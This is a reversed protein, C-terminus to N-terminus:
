GRPPPLLLGKPGWKAMCYFFPVTVWKPAIDRPRVGFFAIGDRRTMVPSCGFSSVPIYCVTQSVNEATAVFDPCYRSFLRRLSESTREVRATDVRAPSGDGPELFPEDDISVGALDAWIDFKPVVVVLPKKIRHSAPLRLFRRVRVGVENVIQEQRVQPVPVTGAPRLGHTLQPDRSTCKARFAPEQIPDFLMFIIGSKALHQIATPNPDAIDPLYDEGANDYLVVLRGLRHTEAHHPHAPTPRAVFQLPVPYRIDRGGITVTRHLRPDDRQTKILQTLRDPHPNHFLTNEWEHIVSNMAVDADTFQLHFREPALQRLKAVMATLYYSKGSAPSGVISIFLSFVDIAAEPLSLHCKPCAILTTPVEREDLAKWDITFRLPEFRRFENPGAIPDGILDPHQAIFLVSEPAFSHWCNPCVMKQVLHKGLPVQTLPKGVRLRPAPQEPAPGVLEAEAPAAEAPVSPAVAPHPPEPAPGPPSPASGAPEVLVVEGDAPEVELPAEDAPGLPITEPPTPAANDLFRLITTGIRIEDGSELPLEKVRHGNLFTGAPCGLDTLMFGEPGRRIQVHAAGAAMDQLPVACSPDRGLVFEDQEVHFVGGAGPGQTIEFIPM